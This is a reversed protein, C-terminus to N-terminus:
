FRFVLSPLMGIGFQTPGNPSGVTWCVVATEQSIENIKISQFYFVGKKSLFINMFVSPSCSAISWQDVIAYRIPFKSTSDNIHSDNTTFIKNRVMIQQNCFYIHVACLCSGNLLFLHSLYPKQLTNISPLLFLSKIEVSISYFVPACLFLILLLPITIPYYHSLKFPSYM